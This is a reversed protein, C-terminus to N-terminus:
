RGRGRIIVKGITVSIGFVAAFVTPISITAAIHPEVGMKVLVIFITLAMLTSVILLTLIVEMQKQGYGRM